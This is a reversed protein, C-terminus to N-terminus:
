SLICIFMDIVLTIIIIIAIATGWFAINLIEKM